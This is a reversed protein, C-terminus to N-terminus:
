KKKSSSEVEIEDVRDIGPLQSKLSELIAAASDGLMGGRRRAAHLAKTLEDIAEGNSDLILSMPSVSPALHPATPASPWNSMVYYGALAFDSSLPIRIYRKPAM